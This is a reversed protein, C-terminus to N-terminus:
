RARAATARTAASAKSQDFGSDSCEFVVRSAEIFVINASSSAASNAQPLANAASVLVSAFFVSAVFVSAVFAVGIIQDLIKM